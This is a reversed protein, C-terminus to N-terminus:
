EIYRRAAKTASDVLEAAEGGPEQRIMVSHRCPENGAPALSSNLPLDVPELQKLPPHLHIATPRTGAIASATLSALLTAWSVAAIV